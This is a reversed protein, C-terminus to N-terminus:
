FNLRMVFDNMWYPGIPIDEERIMQFGAREYFHRANNFRNVNLDLSRIGKKLLISKIAEILKRGYGKNHHEPLVYLKHIKYVRPDEARPGFAAFAQANGELDLVLYSQTGNVIQARLVDPTYIADLMYRIQEPPLIPSYTPWWTTEAIHIIAAIDDVTADRIKFM